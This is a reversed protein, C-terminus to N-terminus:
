NNSRTSIIELMEDAVENIRDAWVPKGCVEDDTAMQRMLALAKKAVPLPAHTILSRIHAREGRDEFGREIPLLDSSLWYRM